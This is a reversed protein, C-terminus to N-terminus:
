GARRSGIRMPPRGSLPKKPLSYGIRMPPRGSLPKKPLSDEGVRTRVEQGDDHTCEQHVAGNRTTGSVPTRVAPDAVSM